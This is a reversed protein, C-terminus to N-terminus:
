VEDGGFQNPQDSELLLKAVSVGLESSLDRWAKEKQSASASQLQVIRIMARFNSITASLNQYKTMQLHLMERFFKPAKMRAITTEIRLALLLRESEYAELMNRLQDEANM